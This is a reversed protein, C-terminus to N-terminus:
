PGFTNTLPKGLEKKVAIKACHISSNYVANKDERAQENECCGTM